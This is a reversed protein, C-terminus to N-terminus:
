KVWIQTNYSDPQFSEINLVFFTCVRWHPPAWCLPFTIVTNVAVVILVGITPTKLSHFYFFVYFYTREVYFQKIEQNMSKTACQNKCNEESPINVIIISWTCYTLVHNIFVPDLAQLYPEKAFKGPFIFPFVFFNKQPTNFCYLNLKERRKMCM